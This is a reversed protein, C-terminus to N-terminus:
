WRRGGPCHPRGTWSAVPGRCAAGAHGSRSRCDPGRTAEAPQAWAHGSTPRAIIQSVDVDAPQDIAFAIAAGISSAPIAVSRFMRREERGVPGAISEALESETVGPCVATVRIDGGVEQRLGESVAWM